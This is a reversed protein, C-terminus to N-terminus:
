KSAAGGAHLADRRQSSANAQRVNYEQAVELNDVSNFVTGAPCLLRKLFRPFLQASTACLFFGANPSATTALSHLSRYKAYVM